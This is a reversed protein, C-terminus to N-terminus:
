GYYHRGKTTDIYTLGCNHCQMDILNKTITENNDYITGIRSCTNTEGASISGDINISPSCLKLNNIDNELFKIATAVNNFIKTLNRLNTCGTYKKTIPINNKTAKECPTIYDVSDVYVFRDHRIRQIRQPYYRPDNTIQVHIQTDVIAKTLEPNELFMGNSILAIFFASRKANEIIEIIKPHETPEGGSIGLFLVNMRQAFRLSEMLVEKTMHQGHPGTNEIFCHSCGMHCRETVRLLM